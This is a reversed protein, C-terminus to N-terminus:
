SRVSARPEPATSGLRRQSHPSLRHAVERCSPISAVTRLLTLDAAWLPCATRLVLTWGRLNLPRGTPTTFVYDTDHWLDAATARERNQETRHRQLLTVLEDPLGIIRNGAKSKTAGTEAHDLRHM